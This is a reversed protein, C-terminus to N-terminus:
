KSVPVVETNGYDIYFIEVKFEDPLVTRYQKTVGAAGTPPIIVEYTEGPELIRKIRGRYWKRDRSFQM